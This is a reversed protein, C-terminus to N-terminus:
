RRLVEDWVFPSLEQPLGKGLLELMDAVQTRHQIGHDIMQALALAYPIQDEPDIPGKDTDTWNLPDSMTHTEITRTVAEGFERDAQDFLVLLEEAMRTRGEKELRPRPACRNLRDAFFFMAGVLHNITREVSGPGIGVRREFEEQSLEACVEILTRTAWRDYAFLTELFPHNVQHEQYVFIV